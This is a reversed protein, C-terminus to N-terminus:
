RFLRPISKCRSNGKGYIVVRVEIDENLQRLATNLEEAMETSFTNFKQPRNLTIIGMQDRKEILITEYSM